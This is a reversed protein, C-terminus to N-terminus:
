TTYVLYITGNPDTTSSAPATTGWRVIPVKTPTSADHRLYLGRQYTEANGENYMLEGPDSSSRATLDAFTNFRGVVYRELATALQKLFFPTHPRQATGPVPFAQETTTDGTGGPDSSSDRGGGTVADYDAFGDQASGTPGQIGQPGTDGTLGQPGEPGVGGGLRSITVRLDTPTAPYTDNPLVRVTWRDTDTTSRAQTTLGLYVPTNDDGPDYVARQAFVVGNKFLGITRWGETSGASTTISLEVNIQYQGPQGSTPHNVQFETDNVKTVVYLSENDLVQLDNYVESGLNLTTWVAGPVTGSFSTNSFEAGPSQLDGPSGRFQGADVWRPPVLDYNWFWLHGDDDTVWADGEGGTAPLSAQDAVTGRLIMPPGIDGQDGKPGVPGVGRLIGERIQITGGNVLRVLNTTM